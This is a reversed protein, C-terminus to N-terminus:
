LKRGNRYINWVDVLQDLQLLQDQPNLTLPISARLHKLLLVLRVLPVLEKCLTSMWGQIGQFDQPFFSFSSSHSLGGPEQSRIKTWCFRRRAAGICVFTTITLLEFFHLQKSVKQQLRSCGPFWCTDKRSNAYAAAAANTQFEELSSNRETEVSSFPEVIVHSKM